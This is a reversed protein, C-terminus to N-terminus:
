QSLLSNLAQEACPADNREVDIIRSLYSV